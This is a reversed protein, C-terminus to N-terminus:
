EDHDSPVLSAGDAASGNDEDDGVRRGFEFEIGLDSGRGTSIIPHTVVTVVKAPYREEQEFGELFHVARLHSSASM